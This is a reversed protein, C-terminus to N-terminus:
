LEFNQSAPTLCVSEFDSSFFPISKKIMTGSKLEETWLDAQIETNEKEKGKQLSRLDQCGDLM